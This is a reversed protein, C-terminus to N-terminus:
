KARTQEGSNGLELTVRHDGAELEVGGANVEVVRYGNEVSDGVSVFLREESGPRRLIAVNRPNKLRQDGLVVGTVVLAPAPPPGMEVPKPPIARRNATELLQAMPIPTARIVPRPAPVPAVRPPAAPTPVAGAVPQFPDKGGTPPGVLSPDFVVPQGEAGNTRGANAAAVGAAAEKKPEEPKPPAPPALAGMSSYILYGFVCVALGILAFLKPKEKPDIQKFDM